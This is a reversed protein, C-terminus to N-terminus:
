ESRLAEVPNLGAAHYAPLIGALLGIIIALIEAVLVYGWPTHVPLVPMLGHLIWAGGIGLALGAAGGLGSLM